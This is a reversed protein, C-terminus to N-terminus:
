WRRGQSDSMLWSPPAGRDTGQADQSYCADTHRVSARLVAATVRGPEGAPEAVAWISLTSDSNGSALEAGDPLWSQYWV